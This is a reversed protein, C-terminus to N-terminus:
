SHVPNVRHSWAMFTRYMLPIVFLTLVTSFALGWVIATAVPGWILSKGALGAALSFLGAITTLSDTMIDISLASAEFDITVTASALVLATFDQGNLLLQTLRWNGVFVEADTPGSDDEDGGSDCGVAAGLMVVVLTFLWRKRMGVGEWM